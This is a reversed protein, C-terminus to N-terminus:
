GAWALAILSGGLAGAQIVFASWRYGAEARKLALAQPMDVCPSALMMMMMTTTTMEAANNLAMSRSRTMDAEICTGIASERGDM